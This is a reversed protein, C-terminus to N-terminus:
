LLAEVQKTKGTPKKVRPDAVRRHQFRATTSTEIVGDIAAVIQAPLRKKLRDLADLDVRWLRDSPEIGQETLVRKLDPVTVARENVEGYGYSGEGVQVFGKPHIGGLYRKLREKASAAFAEVAVVDGALRQAAGDDEISLDDIARDRLQRIRPCTHTYSCLTCWNGPTAEFDNNRERDVATAIEQVLDIEVQRLDDATIVMSQYNNSYRVFRKVLEFETFAPYNHHLLLAYRPLQKGAEFQQRNEPWWNTKYDTIRCRTRTVREAMDPTGYFEVLEGYVDIVKALREECLFVAKPDIEWDEGLSEQFRTLVQLADFYEMDSGRVVRYAIEHINLIPSESVIEHVAARIASHVNQGGHLAPSPMPPTNRVYAENYAWGCEGYLRLQSNRFARM